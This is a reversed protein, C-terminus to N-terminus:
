ILNRGFALSDRSCGPKLAGSDYTQFPLLELRHQTAVMDGLARTAKDTSQRKTSESAIPQPLPEFLDSPVPVESGPLLWDPPPVEPEPPPVDSEPPPPVDPEPPPEFEPPPVPPPVVLVGGVMVNEAVGM